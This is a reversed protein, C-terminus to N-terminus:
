VVLGTLFDERCVKRKLHFMIHDNEEITKSPLPSLNQLKPMAFPISLGGLGKKKYLILTYNMSSYMYSTPHCIPGWLYLNDGNHLTRYSSLMKVATFSLVILSSSVLQLQDKLCNSILIM